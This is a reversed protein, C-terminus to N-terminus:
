GVSVTWNGDASIAVLAPGGNLPVRGQYSGIENVLLSGFTDDQAFEKVAFNSEGTHTFAAVGANGLYAAVEDGKGTLTDAFTRLQSVDLLAITWAGDASIKLAKVDGANGFDNILVSGSYKGIVNVALSTMQMDADLGEISFNSRGDHTASLVLRGHGEPLAVVDDGKGSFEIKEPLTTPAATTTTQTTDPAATTTSDGSTVSPGAATTETSAATTTSKQATSTTASQCSWLTLAALPLFPLRRNM